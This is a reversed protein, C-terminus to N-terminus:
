KRKRWVPKVHKNSLIINVESNKLCASCAKKSFGFDEFLPHTKYEVGCFECVGKTPPKIPPNILYPESFSPKKQKKYFQALKGKICEDCLPVDYKKLSSKLATEKGCLFCFMVDATKISITVSQAGLTSLFGNEFMHSFKYAFTGERLNEGTFCGRECFAYLLDAGSYRVVSLGAGEVFKKLKGPRYWYQFFAEQPQKYRLVTKIQNKIAKKAKQIFVNFSISPTTIIAIGGLRLVRYAERLPRHPGEIFHEVVGLSIYGSLSNDMYPLNTVDGTKFDAHLDHEKKWKNLYLITPESFDIGEIDLGLQSLYFVYRGLGCGAEVSKGHRPMYKLIWQRLGYFDWMQIESKPTIGKWANTWTDTKQGLNEM